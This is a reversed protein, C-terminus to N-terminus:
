AASSLCSNPQVCHFARKGYRKHLEQIKFTFGGKLVVDYYFEYWKSLAALKPGPFKALPSIYLRYIALAVLYALWAVFLAAAGDASLLWLAQQPVEM